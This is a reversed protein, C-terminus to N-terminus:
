GAAHAPLFRKAEVRARNKRVLKPDSIRRPCVAPGPAHDLVFRAVRGVSKPGIRHRGSEARPCIIVLDAQWEAATNVIEREPRGQRPLMEAEPFYNLGENLVDQASM